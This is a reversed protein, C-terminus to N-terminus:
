ISFDDGNWVGDDPVSPGLESIQGALRQELEEVRRQLSQLGAGVLDVGSDRQIDDPEADSARSRRQLIQGPVGVVVSGPPVDRVVVANAGIRSDAGITVAGLVKAGAGILVRDGVTPHRKGRELSTGGLTVGQYIVVDDGVEATEGIVVGLGHDIFVGRGIVAAPHIDVATLMRVLGSVLRAAFRHGGTWLRHSVRYGVLAHLGPYGIFADLRGRSAPDRAVIADVDRRIADLM